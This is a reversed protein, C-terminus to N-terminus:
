IRTTFGLQDHHLVNKIWYQIENGQLKINKTDTNTIVKVQETIHYLVIYDKIVFMALFYLLKLYFLLKNKEWM